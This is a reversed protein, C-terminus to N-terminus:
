KIWTSSRNASVRFQADTGEAVSSSIASISIEPVADDDLVQIFAVSSLLAIRPDRIPANAVPREHRYLRYNNSDGLIIKALFVVMQNM